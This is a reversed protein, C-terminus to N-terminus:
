MIKGSTDLSIHSNQTRKNEPGLGFFIALTFPEFVATGGFDRLITFEGGTFDTFITLTSRTANFM